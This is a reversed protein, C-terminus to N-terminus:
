VTPPAKQEALFEDIADDLSDYKKETPPVSGAGGKGPDITPPPTDEPKPVDDTTPLDGHKARFKEAWKHYEEAAADIDGDAATVFPYFLDEEIPKEETNIRAFERDWEEKQRQQQIYDVAEQVDEPLEDADVKFKIDEDSPTEDNVDQGGEDTIAEILKDATDQGYLEVAVARFTNNPDSSFDNWLREADRSPQSEQELKTVYPQINERLFEDVKGQLAPDDFKEAIDKAWPSDPAPPTPEPTPEPQEDTGGQEPAEDTEM